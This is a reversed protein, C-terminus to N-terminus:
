RGGRQRRQALENRARDAMELTIGARQLVAMRFRQWGLTDSRDPLDIGLERGKAEIAEAQVYWPGADGPADPAAGSPKVFDSRVWNRWTAEWSVKRAEKGAKAAWHDRFREAELRVDAPTLGPRNAIAWDGWAKPLVWDAPLRSGQPPPSKAPAASGPEAPPAAPPADVTKKPPSKDGAGAPSDPAGISGTGSGTREGTGAGPKPPAESPSRLPKGGPSNDVPRALQPPLHFSEAYRAYFASKIAGEAMAAFQKRVSVVQNDGPKLAEGIQFRAMEHVWVVEAGEDYTCFGEEILRQLAKSAGELGLGTEHAMYLVPIYYVGTMTAHGCTVLYAALLQAAPDGRLAKGTRGTWFSGTMKAYDRM